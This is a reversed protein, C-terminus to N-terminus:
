EAVTLTVSRTPYVSFDAGVGPGIAYSFIWTGNGHAFNIGLAWTNLNWQKMPGAFQQSTRANSVVGGVGAGGFGGFTAGEGDHSPATYITGNENYFAGGSAFVAVEQNDFFYMAGASATAGASLHVDDIRAPGNGAEVSTTVFMGESHPLQDEIKTWRNRIREVVTRGATRLARGTAEAGRGLAQMKRAFWGDERDHQADNLLYQFAGSVAGNAFKGGGVASATGGVVAAVIAGSYGGGAASSIPSATATAFGSYFGHRFEGGQAEASGGQILGHMLARDWFGIKDAQYLSGVGYTLGGAIGGVLGGIAGAKFADGISGGNLLSGAFGSAFGGAMGAIIAEGLVLGGNAMAAFAGGVTSFAGAGSIFSAAYAAIGATVVAAVVVAVIMGVEKLSLYGSPDTANLPNNLVYSYRNYGQSDSVGDINPDASLFRGILPDYIRGNM